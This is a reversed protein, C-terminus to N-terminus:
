SSDTSLYTNQLYQEVQQRETDTLARDYVLVAAVEMDLYPPADLEAGLVAQGTATDFVHTGTDIQTGDKYHTFQDNALVVSQTLWGADTGTVGAPYDNAGGWGQLMLDGTDDVTTGFARNPSHDGWAFGGFGVSQYSTVLFVTRNQNGTPFGNLSTRSLLDDTGDFSVAAAGSPTAGSVLTPAGEASLDNAAGSQDAWTTVAGDSTSIGTDSELHLVLGSTVPLDGTTDSSTVDIAVTAENSTAGDDDDVTYTFSDTTATSGDHTYTVVGTSTNVSVSGNSPATVITVSSPDLTGDSDTDNALVDVDVSEGNPVSASDDNATPATNSLTVDVSVTAENSAAGDDDDVTYTFSDTTTTSGDHTYTVVGTSTNVSVSGNAPATVITVSSPDLTGDSDTDNALVDVDVSEGQPVSASDDNATPATNSSTNLYSDQLYQEVQQRETDTLARDYVLVAAVEMDLYPPADLEAGLVAQGTGTDFTHTGTDIQTGDKYHTFQDNAFVVSQSLWGADTGTVGAPYDNAGGWGQLMLDGTDDVTTGFARNQSHDGWAFGGFGVSQYSTVLFVTRNQSGTPFGNLSTRSLLDDTGDFNVAAAGSPTAGTLLTPAGEASLDNAAGSQDAWGTVAGDSTSVGTDSELQLVLGSTVPLDGTTDSSTVDISVTAENSTAGDDDDVTYTFSDTSSASGDHTYTVVGTSTDVSVSGNSPATVITVSSPDLTGDSDTDNALVDVDVSDGQPVSASDDNATPATNSSTVDIAVTAENSTAGDDDDVTYTFSDTAATSGDHTYTVVGTSTNVSVSGNSPQSVITVSSPDLTGDSDTDNALVDVDVSEGQPVSASDDNATPATNSTTVDIAVTAENSTAGDDDDVTYTFSDTAATSGDHTYTVVGTSTNV